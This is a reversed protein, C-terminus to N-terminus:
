YRIISIESRSIRNPLLHLLLVYYIRFNCYIAKYTNTYPLNLLPLRIFMMYSYEMLVSICNITNRSFTIVLNQIIECM